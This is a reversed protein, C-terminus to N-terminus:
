QLAMWRANVRLLMLEGKTAGANRAKVLEGVMHMGARAAEDSTEGHKQVARWYDLVAFYYDRSADTYVTQETQEM